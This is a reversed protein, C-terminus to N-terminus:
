HRIREQVSQRSFQRVSTSSSCSRWFVVLFLLLCAFVYNTDDFPLLEWVCKHTFTTLNKLSNWFWCEFNELGLTIRLIVLGSCLLHQRSNKELGSFEKIVSHLPKSLSWMFKLHRSLNGSAILRWVQVRGNSLKYEGFKNCSKLKQIQLDRHKVIIWSENEIRLYITKGSLFELM